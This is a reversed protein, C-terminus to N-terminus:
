TPFPEFSLLYEITYVMDDVPRSINVAVEAYERAPTAAMATMAVVPAFTKSGFFARQCSENVKM